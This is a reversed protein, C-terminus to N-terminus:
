PSKGNFIADITDSTVTGRGRRFIALYEVNGATGTIPSEIIGNCGLGIEDFSAVVEGIVDRRVIPDRVVGKKGVRDRGAEFQPKILLIWTANDGGLAALQQSVTRLSIFSLDSVIIDFPGDFMSADTTRINTREIVDVRDDGRLRWHMQGHGVDVAAVSRVGRQLLCDTFGGTSAGVDIARLGDVHVDFANLAADLKRGARGVFPEPAAVVHVPEDPSVM